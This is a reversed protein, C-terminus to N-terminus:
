YFVAIIQLLVHLEPRVSCKGSVREGESQQFSPNQKPSVTFQLWEQRQQRQQQQQNCTQSQGPADPGVSRPPWAWEVSAPAPAAAFPAAPAATRETRRRRRHPLPRVASRSCVTRGKQWYPANSHPISLDNERNETKLWLIKKILASDNHSSVTSPSNDHCHQRSTGGRNVDKIRILDDWM